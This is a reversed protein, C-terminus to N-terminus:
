TRFVELSTSSKYNKRRKMKLLGNMSQGSIEMFEVGWFSLMGEIQRMIEEVEYIRPSTVNVHLLIGPQPHNIVSPLEHDTIEFSVRINRIFGREVDFEFM